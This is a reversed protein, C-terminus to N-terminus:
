LVVRGERIVTRIRTLADTGFPGEVLVLDADRGPEICGKDPLGLWSAADVTASRVIDRAGVGASEMRTVELYEIGPGPGENGLDTGYLVRGGAAAFRAVNDIAIELDWPPFISLTPVMAVDDDIMRRIVDDPVREPSMLAHALEDVGAELAKVLEALGHIHATVKLGNDHAAAVIAGLVDADLVSGAPPNLAVKIISVGAGALEDVVERAHETSSVAVGTGDPAWRATIPYGGAVTLMPGAAVVLPGAFGPERSWAATEMIRRLPWALDRVTTVGGRLVAAPDALGIHVHCDIFGPLVVAGSADIVQAAEPIIVESGAGAATISDGEILVTADPTEVLDPGLLATGGSVAWRANESM